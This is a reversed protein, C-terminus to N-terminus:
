LDSPIRSCLLVGWRDELRPKLIGFIRPGARIRTAQVATAPERADLAASPISHQTPSQLAIGGRRVRSGM